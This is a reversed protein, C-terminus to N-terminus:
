GFSCLFAIRDPQCTDCYTKAIGVLTNLRQQLELCPHWNKDLDRRCKETKEGEEVYFNIVLIAFFHLRDAIFTRVQETV